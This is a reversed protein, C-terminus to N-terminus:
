IKFYILNIVVPGLLFQNLRETTKKVIENELMNDDNGFNKCYEQDDNEGEIKNQSNIKENKNDREQSFQPIFYNLSKCAFNFYTNLDDYQQKLKKDEQIFQDMNKTKSIDEDIGEFKQQSNVNIEQINDSVQSEVVKTNIPFLSSDYEDENIEINFKGKDQNIKTKIENNISESNM